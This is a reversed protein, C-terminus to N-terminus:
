WTMTQNKLLVLLLLKGHYRFEQDPTKREGGNINDPLQAQRSNRMINFNKALRNEVEKTLACLEGCKTYLILLVMDVM